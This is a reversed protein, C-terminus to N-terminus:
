KVNGRNKRYFYGRIALDITKLLYYIVEVIGPLQCLPLPESLYGKM